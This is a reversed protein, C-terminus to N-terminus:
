DVEEYDIYDDKEKIKGRDTLDDYGRIGAVMPKIFLRYALFAFMAIILFKM